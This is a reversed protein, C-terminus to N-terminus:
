TDIWMCCPNWRNNEWLIGFTEMHRHRGTEPEGTVPYGLILGDPMCHKPFGYGTTWESGGHVALSAALHGGASFGCLFVSQPDVHYANANERVHAVACALERLVTPYIKGISYQLLFAQVGYAQFRRAVPEGEAYSLCSYGGGPCIIVAPKPRGIAKNCYSVLAAYRPRPEFTYEKPTVIRIYQQDM